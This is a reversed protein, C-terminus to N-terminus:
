MHKRKNDILQVIPSSSRPRKLTRSQDSSTEGGQPSQDAQFSLDSSIDSTNEEGPQKEHDHPVSSQVGFSFPETSPSGGWIQETVDYFDM